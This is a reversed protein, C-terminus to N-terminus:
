RILSQSSIGLHEELLSIGFLEASSVGLASEELSIGFMGPSSPGTVVKGYSRLKYTEYIKGEELSLNGSKLDRYDIFYAATNASVSDGPTAAHNSSALSIFFEESVRRGMEAVYLCNADPVNIYWNNTYDNIRIYFSSNNTVNTVKLVPVSKQWLEQGFERLFVNRKEDSIEWYAFLWHPDRALLTIRNDNYGLPLHYTSQTHVDSM